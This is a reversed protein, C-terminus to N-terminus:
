RSQPYYQINIGIGLVDEEFDRKTHYCFLEQRIWFSSDLALMEFEESVDAADFLQKKNLFSFIYLKIEQPLMTWDVVPSIDSKQQAKQKIEARSPSSSVAASNRTEKTQNKQISASIAVTSIEREQTTQKMENSAPESSPVTPTQKPAPRRMPMFNSSIMLPVSPPPVYKKKEQAVVPVQSSPLNEEEKKDGVTEAKKSSKRNRENKVSTNVKEKGEPISVKQGEDAYVFYKVSRLYHMNFNNTAMEMVFLNPRHNPDMCVLKWTQGKVYVEELNYQVMMESEVTRGDASRFGVNISLTDKLQQPLFLPRKTEQEEKVVSSAVRNKVPM